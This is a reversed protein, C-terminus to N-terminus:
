VVERGKESYKALDATFKESRRARENYSEALRSGKIDYEALVKDLAAKAETSKTKNKIDEIQGKLEEFRTDQNYSLQGKPTNALEDFEKQATEEGSVADRYAKYAEGGLAEEITDTSIYGREMDERVEAAITKKQAATLKKGDAEKEAIRSETVKDAVTQETDTLGSTSKGSVTDVTAKAIGPAGELGFSTIAGLLASYAVEEFDPANYAEKTVWSDFLPELYAQLAEEAGEKGMEVSAHGLAQLIKPSKAAAKSLAETIKAATKPAIKSLATSLGKGGLKGIGGIAYQLVAESAGTLLAAGRAQDVTYGDEIMQNYKNGGASVGMAATGLVPNVAGVAISPAMNGITNAVDNTVKWVGTNDESMLQQSQQLSSPTPVDESGTVFNKVGTTVGSTFQENGSIYGVIPELATNNFDAGAAIGQRKELSPTISDFYEDAKKEGYKGLYYGHVSKEEDTMLNYLDSWETKGGGSKNFDLGFLSFLSNNKKKESKEWASMGMASYEGFDAASLAALALPNSEKIPAINEIVNIASGDPVLKDLESLFVSTYSNGNKLNQSPVDESAKSSKVTIYDGVNKKKKKAEKDLEKLFNDSFSM